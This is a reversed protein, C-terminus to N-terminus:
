SKIRGTLKDVYEKAQRLGWKYHKIVLQIAEPVKNQGVLEKVKKDLAIDPEMISKEPFNCFKLTRSLKPKSVSGALAFPLTLTEPLFNKVM